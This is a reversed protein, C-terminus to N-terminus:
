SSRDGDELEVNRGARPNRGCVAVVSVLLRDVAQLADEGPRQIAHRGLDAGALREGDGAAGDVAEVVRM